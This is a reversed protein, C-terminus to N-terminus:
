EEDNSVLVPLNLGDLLGFCHTLLPYKKEIPASYDQARQETTPWLFQALPHEQLVALLHQMGSALYWSCVAPTVGFLQQLSYSSMTLCMWHLVLGLTGAADLLQRGVQPEGIPNVDVRDITTFNWRALFRDLLDDFTQVDVGM